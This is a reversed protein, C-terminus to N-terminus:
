YSVAKFIERSSSFCLYSLKCYVDQHYILPLFIANDGISLHTPQLERVFLAPHPLELLLFLWYGDRYSSIVDDGLNRM